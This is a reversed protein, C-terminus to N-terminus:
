RMGLWATSRAGMAPESIPDLKALAVVDGACGQSGNDPAAPPKLTLTLLRQDRCVLLPQARQADHWQALEDIRHLRWGDLALCEDGASLGAAEAAGGRMVAQVKLVGQAESLRVGLRQPLPAAKSMWQVGHAALLAQLPLEECGETWRHLLSAWDPAKVGVERLAACDPGAGAVQGLAQAVDAETIPRRLAWLAKMVGDLSPQGAETSPMLRLSLDLALGVLAGKTYYSVTANATNEDPRYYRTWADFSAQGVSYSLRGPTTRVQNIAKGLLKLYTATDILGTRLLFQDDYYSTFGEFFWLMRTHNERSLDYPAFAVPKLRKVNWTHFYEHSILGLLTQYAETPLPRGTRPLDKRSCILATSQRHELGGYGDEVANLMFVYHDFDPKRRGHWFQIQAECIRRTDALLREGDLDATAGSVVFEHRVGRVTFEGRWFTGMAVPHDILADHDPAEYVGVGQANVKVAPLATAVQWGRPLGALTVRQPQDEFGEAQLFLSTGNFFGRQADLFAARVSTDFAYVEYRVTLAGRGETEVEWSAKDLPTVRCARDGQHASLPSLHRAFERVLYSGPIWVPLHLRQRAAPRAVRMTVQFRHSHVDAVEIRFEIM